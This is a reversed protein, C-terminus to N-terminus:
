LETEFLFRTLAAHSKLNLKQMINKRHTEITFISRFLITSIQQNTNGAKILDMIELEKRTINYTLAYLKLREKASDMSQQLDPFSPNNAIAGLIANKLEQRNANKFLYGDAGNAISNQITNRDAYTSLMIVKIEPYQKKILQLVKIGDMVPMKIDLIIVAPKNHILKALLEEGSGAKGICRIEEDAAFMSLLGEAFLQHDDAIIVTVAASPNTM